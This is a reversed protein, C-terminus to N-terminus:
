AWLEKGIKLLNEMRSLFTTADVGITENKNTICVPVLKGIESTHPNRNRCNEPEPLWM